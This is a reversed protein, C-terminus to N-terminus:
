SNVIVQQETQAEVMPADDDSDQVNEQPDEASDDANASSAASAISRDDVSPPDIILVPGDDNSPQEKAQEGIAWNRTTTINECSARSQTTGKTCM